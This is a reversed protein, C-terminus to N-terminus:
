LDKLISSYFCQLVLSCPGTSCRPTYLLQWSGRDVLRRRGRPSCQPSQGAVQQITSLPGNNLIGFLLLSFDYSYAKALQLRKCSGAGAAAQSSLQHSIGLTSSVRSFIRMDRCPDMPFCETCNPHMHSLKKQLYKKSFFELIESIM